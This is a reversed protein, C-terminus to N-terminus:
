PTQGFVVNTPTSGGIAQLILDRDNEAGVYRVVGDMNVDEPHYGSAVNTPTSGGVRVLIPDRDNNPGVYSIQNDGRVNGPTMRCEVGGCKPAPSFYFFPFISLAGNLPSTTLAGSFPLVHDTIMPLHNRHILRIRYNGPPMQVTLPSSGDVGTIKKDAHLLGNVSAVVTPGAEDLLDVRVWDVVQNDQFITACNGAVTSGGSTAPPYGLATYPETCPILGQDALDTRLSNTGAGADSAGDLSCLLQFRHEIVQDGAALVDFSYTEGTCGGTYHGPASVDFSVTPWFGPTTGTPTVSEGDRYVGASCSYDGNPYLTCYLTLVSGPALHFTGYDIGYGIHPKLVMAGEGQANTIFMGSVYYCEKAALGQSVLIAAALVISSWHFSRKM